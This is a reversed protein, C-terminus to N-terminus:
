RTITIQQVSINNLPHPDPNQSAAAALVVVKGATSAKVTIAFKASAGSALSALTWTFVNAHRACGPTCSLESLAAPLLVGAVVKTATAPGANALTLTCIGTGGATLSAPCSL